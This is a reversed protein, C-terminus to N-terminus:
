YSPLWCRELWRWAPACNAPTQGRDSLSRLVAVLAAGEVSCFPVGLQDRSCLAGARRLSLAHRFVCRVLGRKFPRVKQTWRGRLPDICDVYELAEVGEGDLESGLMALSDALHFASFSRYDAGLGLMLGDGDCLRAFPSNRGFPEDDDLHGSTLWEADRGIACVPHTPHLSHYAGSTRRVLESLLGTRAPVRRVAIPQSVTRLHDAMSGTFGFAPMLLTGQDGILSRLLNLLEVPGIDCAQQLAAHSSHVMVTRGSQVGLEDLVEALREVSLKDRGLRALRLRAQRQYYILANLSREIM